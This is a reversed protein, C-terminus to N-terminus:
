SGPGDGTLHFASETTQLAAAAAPTNTHHRVTPKLRRAAENAHTRVAAPNPPKYVSCSGYVDSGSIYASPGIRVVARGVRRDTVTAIPATLPGPGARRLRRPTAHAINSSNPGSYKSAGAPMQNAGAPRRRSAM